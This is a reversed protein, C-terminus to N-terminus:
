SFVVRVKYENPQNINMFHWGLQKILQETLQLGLGFGLNNEKIEASKETNIIEVSSEKQRIVVDGEWTHQFANRILNGLVIKAAIDPLKIKFMETDVHVSVPKDNLLYHMETVLDQVLKDLEIEKQPLPAPSDKSLWLLTETLHQMTLSARDIRSIVEQLKAESNQGKQEKLKDLLEINNRIVSIPTRLEHSTHRLFKQERELGDHVTSLSNRILEAMRNLEPYYFDPAPKKLNTADLARTWDGLANIPRSVLWLLLILVLALSLITIASITILTNRSERINNHVMETISERPLSRSIYVTKGQDDYRMAFIINEPPGDTTAREIQKILKGPQSPAQLFANQVAAPQQKWDHSIVYGNFEMRAQTQEQYQRSFQEMHSAIMNDMGLIFYNGSLTTYGAVLVVGITLFAISVFWKLSINLKM